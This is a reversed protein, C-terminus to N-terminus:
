GGLDPCPPATDEGPGLPRVYVTLTETPVGDIEAWLYFYTYPSGTSGYYTKGSGVPSGNRYWDGEFEYLLMWSCTTGSPVLTPGYLVTGRTGGVKNIALRTAVATKIIVKKGAPGPAADRRPAVVRRTAIPVAHTAAVSSTPQVAAIAITSVILVPLITKRM